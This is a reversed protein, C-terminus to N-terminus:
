TRVNPIPPSTVTADTVTSHGSPRTLMSCPTVAFWRRVTRCDADAAVFGTTGGGAVGSNVSTVSLMASPNTCRSFANTSKSRSRRIGFISEVSPGNM